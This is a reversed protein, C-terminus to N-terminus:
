FLTTQFNIEPPKKQAAILAKEDNVLFKILDVYTNLHLRILSCVGGYSRIRNNMQRVKEIMIRVLLDCILCCWIQIKIANVSDGLFYKLPFNQKIRKFYTEIEWRAKYIEAIRSAKGKFDNTIFKFLREKKKDWFTVLRVKIPNGKIHGMNIIQDKLVGLDNEQTPVVKEKIINIVAAENIRTVWTIHSKSWKRYMDYRNFGKDMVIISKPALTLYDMFDRDQVKAETIRVMSPVRIQHDYVTHLKAGGKKKGDLRYSGAGHMVDTFLTVTSSDM